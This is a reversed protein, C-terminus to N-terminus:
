KRPRSLSGRIRQPWISPLTADTVKTRGGDRSHRKGGAHRTWSPSKRIKAVWLYGGVLDATRSDNQLEIVPFCSLESSRNRPTGTFCLGLPEGLYNVRRLSKAM